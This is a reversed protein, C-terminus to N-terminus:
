QLSAIVANTAQRIFLFSLSYEVDDIPLASLPFASATARSIDADGLQVMAKVKSGLAM